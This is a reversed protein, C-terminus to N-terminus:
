KRWDQEGGKQENLWKDVQSDNRLLFGPTAYFRGNDNEGLHFASEALADFANFLEKKSYTKRRAKYKGLRDDTPKYQKGFKSNYWEIFKKYEERISGDPSLGVYINKKSEKREKSEKKTTPQHNTPPQDTTLRHNARQNTPQANIDIISTDILKAITGKNTARTTIFNFKELFEKDTRYVQRTVGYTKHDGILAEGVELDDFNTDNAWRARRAILVLLVFATPRRKILEYFNKSKRPLQIFGNMVFFALSRFPFCFM